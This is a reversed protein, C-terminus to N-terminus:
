QFKKKEFVVESALPGSVKIKIVNNNTDRIFETKQLNGKSSSFIDKQYPQLIVEPLRLHKAILTNEQISLEYQTELEQSFYTGIYEELNVISPNFEELVLRNAKLSGHLGITYDFRTVSGQDNKIFRLSIDNNPNLMFQDNNIQKIKTKDPYNLASFYLESGESSISFILGPFLEYDGVYSILEGPTAAKWELVRDNSYDAHDKLFIDIISYALKATDLDDRNSLISIAFDLKPIRILFSRFGADRGGHSWTNFGKYPRLEQGRSFIAPDNDSAYSREAMLKLVQKNGITPNNFNQTWKLLDIVTTQLGTSGINESSLLLKEYKNGNVHYSDARNKIILNRNVYFQTNNMELPIFIRQKTFEFFSIKSVREVIQSLLFYGSNSYEVHDGANFNMGKQNSLLNMYQENTRIDDDLWGAMLTLTSIERFGGTHNLLHNVTIKRAKYKLEPLYNRIDENLNIKGESVLLLISFATFQKSVSAAHFVTKAFIPSMHELNAQGYGKSFVVKNNLMIGVALGPAFDSQWTNLLTKTANIKSTLQNTTNKHKSNESSVCATIFLFLYMLKNFHNQIKM